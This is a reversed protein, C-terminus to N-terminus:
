VSRGRAGGGDGRPTRAWVAVWVSTAGAALLEEACARATAGTTWVDDVLLVRRGIVVGPLRCYFAREAARRRSASGLRKLAPRSSWRRGLVRRPAAAGRRTSVVRALAAAPDFGRRLRTWPHSPVPVVVTAPSAPPWGSLNAALQRALPELLEPRGQMKARLLARRAFGRYAVAARVRAIPSDGAPEDEFPEPRISAWCGPCAGLDHDVGLARGCGFCPTPLLYRAMARHLVRRWKRWPPLM